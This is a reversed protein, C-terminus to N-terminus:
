QEVGLREATVLLQDVAQSARISFDPYRSIWGEIEYFISLRLSDLSHSRAAM